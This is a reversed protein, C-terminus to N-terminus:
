RCFPPLTGPLSTGIARTLALEVIEFKRSGSLVYDIRDAIPLKSKWMERHVPPSCLAHAANGFIFNLTELLFVKVKWVYTVPINFTRISIQNLHHLWCYLELNLCLDYINNTHGM